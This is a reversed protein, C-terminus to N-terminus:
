QTKGERGQVLLQVSGLTEYEKGIAFLTTEKEQKCQQKKIKFITVTTTKTTKLTVGEGDSYL